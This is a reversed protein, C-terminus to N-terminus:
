FFKMINPFVDLMKTRDIIIQSKRENASIHLDKTIKKANHNRMMIFNQSSIFTSNKAPYIKSSSKISEHDALSFMAPLMLSSSIIKVEIFQRRRLQSFIM